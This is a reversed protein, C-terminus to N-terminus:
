PTARGNGNTARAPAENAPSTSTTDSVEEYRLLRQFLKANTEQTGKMNEMSTEYAGLVSVAERRDAILARVLAMFIDVHSEKLDDLERARTMADLVDDSLKRASGEAQRESSEIIKTMPAYIYGRVMKPVRPAIPQLGRGKAWRELRARGLEPFLTLGVCDSLAKNPLLDAEIADSVLKRLALDSDLGALSLYDGLTGPESASVMHHKVTDYNM